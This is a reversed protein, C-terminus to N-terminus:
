IWLKRKINEVASEPLLAKLTKRLWAQDAALRVARRSFKNHSNAKDLLSKKLASQEFAQLANQQSRLLRLTKQGLESQAFDSGALTDVVQNYEPVRQTARRTAALYQDGFKEDPELHCGEAWENWANIFIFKESNREDLYTKEVISNLWTEYAEPSSQIFLHGSNGRRATNDWAPAIGRYLPYSEQPRNMGQLAALNYDFIGGGQHSGNLYPIRGKFENEQTMYQHPPFEVAADFNYKNPDSINWFQVAVLHLGSLGAEVAMQRWMNAVEIINPILDVRYVLLMPKSDVRIYRPDKLTPILESLFRRLSEPSYNQQMLIQKEDGDWRRTWNENAWCICFPLVPKGSKLVNELPKELLRHGDFWYHYYCFGHIGYKKAMQAQAEQTKPELLSYYNLDKPVHPQYHGEFLPKAKKVNTWETFGEGWWKDNEPIPHFQPLYFAIPKIETM